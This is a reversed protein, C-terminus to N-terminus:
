ISCRMETFDCRNYEQFRAIGALIRDAVEASAVGDQLWIRKVLLTKSKPDTEMELRAVLESGCLVPLVYYGYKRQSVPTYVEWKYEFGFLEAILKRDWLLNDLPALIRACSTIDPALAAAAQLLDLNEAAIYLPQKIGDVTISAIAEEELLAQFAQNREASRLGNIGLWADSPKNWLLGVANVRRLVGWKYYEEDTRYPPAMSFYQEPICKEALAYYRRTGKKHHVVALGAYCMAELAAKALRQPGYHWDVKADHAFDSSCASDHQQLYETFEDIVEQHGRCWDLFRRRFREFCSWDAVTSISMNKDWVDFLVRDGYLLPEIDGKRYSSCRAQLVLDPNRGVVDLPDYQICGVKRIYDVIDEGNQM